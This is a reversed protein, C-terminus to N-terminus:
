VYFGLFVISPNSLNPGQLKIRAICTFGRLYQVRLEAPYLMLRRLQRDFTRIRGPECLAPLFNLVGRCPYFYTVTLLIVCGLSQEIPLNASHDFASTKFVLTGCPVTPEFGVDEAIPYGLISATPSSGMVTYTDFRVGM